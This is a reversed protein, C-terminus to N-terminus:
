VLQPLKVASSTGGKAQRQAADHRFGQDGIQLCAPFCLSFDPLVMSIPYRNKTYFGIILIIELKTCEIQFIEM